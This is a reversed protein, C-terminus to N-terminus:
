KLLGKKRETEGRFSWKEQSCGRFGVETNSNSEDGQPRATKCTTERECLIIEKRTAPYDRIRKEVLLLISTWSQWLTGAGGVFDWNKEVLNRWSDGRPGEKLGEEGEAAVECKMKKTSHHTTTRGKGTLLNKKRKVIRTGTKPANALKRGSLCGKKM